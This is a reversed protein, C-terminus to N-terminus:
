CNQSTTARDVPLEYSNSLMLEEEEWDKNSLDQDLTKSELFVTIDANVNLAERFGRRLFRNKVIDSHFFKSATIIGGRNISLVSKNLSCERTGEPTDVSFRIRLQVRPNPCKVIQLYLSIYGNCDEDKGAPFLKLMFEHDNSGFPKSTIYEGTSHLEM